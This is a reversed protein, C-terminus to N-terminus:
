RNKYVALAPESLKKGTYDSNFYHPDIKESDETELSSPASQRTTPRSGVLYLRTKTEYLTIRNLKGKM